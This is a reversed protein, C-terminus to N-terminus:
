TLLSPALLAALEPHLTPDLVVDNYDYDGGIMDEFRIVGNDDIQVMSDRTHRSDNAHVADFAFIHDVRGDAFTTEIFPALKYGEDVILQTTGDATEQLAFAGAYNDESLAAQEYGADSPALWKGTISDLVSGDDRTKYFEVDNSNAADAASLNMMKDGETDQATWYTYRMKDALDNQIESPAQAFEEFSISSWDKAKRDWYNFTSKSLDVNSGSIDLKLDTFWGFKRTDVSIQISSALSRYQNLLDKELGKSNWLFVNSDKEIKLHKPNYRDESVTETYAKKIENAKETNALVGFFTLDHLFDIRDQKGTFFNYTSFGYKASNFPRPLGPLYALTQPDKVSTKMKLEIGDAGMSTSNLETLEFNVNQWADAQKVDLDDIPITQIVFRDLPDWDEIKIAQNWKGPPVVKQKLEERYFNNTQAPKNKQFAKAVSVGLEIVSLGAEIYPIKKLIPFKKKDDFFAKTTTTLSKVAKTGADAQSAWNSSGDTSYDINIGKQIVEEKYGYSATLNYTDVSFGDGWESEIKDNPKNVDPSDTDGLLTYFINGGSNGGRLNIKSLDGLMFTDQGQGGSLLIPKWSIDTKKNNLFKLALDGTPSPEFNKVQRNKSNIENAHMGAYLLPDFGYLFDNGPGGYIKQGGITIRSQDQEADTIDTKNAHIYRGHTDTFENVYGNLLRDIYGGKKGSGKYKSTEVNQPTITNSDYEISGKQLPEGAPKPDSRVNSVFHPANKMSDIINKGFEISPLFAALSPIATDSGEGLHIDKHSNDFLVFDDKLSTKLTISNNENAYPLPYFAETTLKKDRGPIGGSLYADSFSLMFGAQHSPTAINSMAKAVSFPSSIYIIPKSLFSSGYSSLSWNVDRQRLSLPQFATYFDGHTYLSTKGELGYLKNYLDIGLEKNANAFGFTKLHKDYDANFVVKQFDRFKSPDQFLAKADKKLQEFEKNIAPFISSDFGSFPATRNPRQFGSSELKELDVETPSLFAAPYLLSPSFFSM